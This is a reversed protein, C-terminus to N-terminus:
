RRQDADGSRMTTFRWRTRRQAHIEFAPRQAAAKTIRLRCAIVDPMPSSFRVMLVPLNLTDGRTVLRKTPCLGCHTPRSRSRM